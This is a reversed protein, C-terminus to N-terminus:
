GRVTVFSLIVRSNVPLGWYTTAPKFQSLLVVEQLFQDVHANRTGGIVKYEYIRGADNVETQMSFVQDLETAPAAKFRQLTNVTTTPQQYIVVVDRGSESAAARHTTFSGFLIGFGLFTLIVGMVAPM